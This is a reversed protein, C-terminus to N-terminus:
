MEVDWLIAKLNLRTDEVSLKFSRLIDDSHDGMCYIQTNVKVERSKDMQSFLQFKVAMQAVRRPEFLRIVWASLDQM